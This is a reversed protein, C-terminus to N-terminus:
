IVACDAVLSALREPMSSALALLGLTGYFGPCVRSSPQLISRSDYYHFNM